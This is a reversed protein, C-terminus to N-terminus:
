RHAEPAPAVLQQGPRLLHPDDGIVDRNAAYWLPWQEAVDQDTAQQGLHRATIDWLTDGRHVVVHDLPEEGHTTASVLGVDSSPRPATPVPTPTWGPRPLTSGIGEAADSTAEATTGAATATVETATIDMADVETATTETAEVEIAVVTETAGAVVPAALLAGVTLLGTAVQRVVPSPGRRTTRGTTPAAVVSDGGLLAQDTLLCLVARTLLVAVWGSSIAAAGTTLFGLGDAVQAVQWGPWQGIAWRTLVVALAGAGLSGVGGLVLAARAGSRSRRADMDDETM